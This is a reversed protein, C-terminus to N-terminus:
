RILGAFALNAFGQNFGVKDVAHDGHGALQEVARLDRNAQPKQRLVFGLGFAAFALALRQKDIGSLQSRQDVADVALQCVSVNLLDHRGVMRPPSLFARAFVFVDRAEALRGAGGFDRRVAM